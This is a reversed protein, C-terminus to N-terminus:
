LQMQVHARYHTHLLKMQETYTRRCTKGHVNGIQQLGTGRETGACLHKAVTREALEAPIQETFPAESFEGAKMIHAHQLYQAETNDM